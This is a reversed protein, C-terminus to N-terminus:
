QCGATKIWTALDGLSLVMGNSQNGSYDLRQFNFAALYAHTDAYYRYYYNESTKSIAPAPSFLEPHNKEAWTFVCDAAATMSPTPQAAQSIRLLQSGVSITATRSASSDNADVTFGLTGNGSGSGAALHLWAGLTAAQWACTSPAAVTLAYSGSGAAVTMTDAALAPTCPAAPAAKIHVTATATQTIGNESYTAAIIVPSDTAVKGATLTNGRMTVMAANSATWTANVSKSTHNSYTATATCSASAAADVTAPCSAAVGTLQPASAKVTVTTSATKTVGYWSVSASISVATDVPAAYSSLKGGGALAGSSSTSPNDIALIATNASSWAASQTVSQTTGNFYETLTCTGINATGSDAPVSAPCNVVLNTLTPPPKVTVTATANKTVGNETYSATLAVATNSAVNGPTLTSCPTHDSMSCASDITAAATNGSTLPAAVTKSSGDSYNATTTCTASLSVYVATPCDVRLTTLKQAKVTITATATKTIGSETYSATLVVPTDVITVRSNLYAGVQVYGLAWLTFETIGGVSLLEANASSWGSPQTVVKSSGDSYTATEICAPGNLLPAIGSKVTAPCSVALGTLSAETFVNAWAASSGFGGLLLCSLLGIAALRLSRLTNM